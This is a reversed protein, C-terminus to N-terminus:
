AHITFGASYAITTNTVGDKKTTYSIEVRYDGPDWANATTKSTPSLSFPEQLGAPIQLAQPPDISTCPDVAVWPTKGGVYQDLQVISCNSRGDQTYYTTKGSANTVTVGIAQNVSYSSLDTTLQIDGPTATPMSTTPIKSSCASALAVTALLGCMLALQRLSRRSM